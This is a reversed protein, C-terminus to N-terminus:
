ELGRKRLYKMFRLTNAASGLGFKCIGEKLAVLEIKPHMKQFKESDIAPSSSSSVGKQGNALENPSLLLGKGTAWDSDKAGFNDKGTEVNSDKRELDVEKGKSKLLKSVAAALVGITTVLGEIAKKCDM